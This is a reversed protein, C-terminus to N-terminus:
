GNVTSHKLEQDLYFQYLKTFAHTYRAKCDKIDGEYRLEKKVKLRYIRKGKAMRELKNIAKIPLENYIPEVIECQEIQGIYTDWEKAAQGKLAKKSFYVEKILPYFYALVRKSGENGFYVVDKNSVIITRVFFNDFNSLQGAVLSAVGFTIVDHGQKKREADFWSYFDRIESISQYKLNGNDITLNYQNAQNWVKTNKLRDKKLWNGKELASKGTATKYTNLNNWEQCFSFPTSFLVWSIALLYIIKNM